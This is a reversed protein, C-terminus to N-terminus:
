DEINCYKKLFRLWNTKNAFSNQYYSKHILFQPFYISIGTARKVEKGVTNAIVVKEIVELTGSLLRKLKSKFLASDQGEKLECKETNKLLNSCFHGFDLFTPEYFHTCYNKHKSLRIAERVTKGKQHTLGVILYAALEDMASALQQINTLDIASHTFKQTIKGHTEKFTEVFHSAFQKDCAINGAILPALLKDYDYGIGREAEESAVYYHVYPELGIFVDAGAM